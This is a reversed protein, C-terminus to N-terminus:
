VTSGNLQTMELSVRFSLNQWKPHSSPEDAIAKKMTSCKMGEETKSTTALLNRTQSYYIMSSNLSGELHHLKDTTSSEMRHMGKQVESLGLELNEIHEKNTAM